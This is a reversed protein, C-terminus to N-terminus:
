DELIEGVDLTSASVAFEASSYPRELLRITLGAVAGHSSWWRSRMGSDGCCAQKDRTIQLKDVASLHDDLLLTRDGLVRGRSM